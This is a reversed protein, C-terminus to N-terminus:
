CKFGKGLRSLSSSRRLGGGFRWCLPEFVLFGSFCGDCLLFLETYESESLSTSSLFALSSPYSHSFDMKEFDFYALSKVAESSNWPKKKSFFAYRQFYDILVPHRREYQSLNNPESLFFSLYKQYELASKKM